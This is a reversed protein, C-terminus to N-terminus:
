KQRRKKAPPQPVGNPNPDQKTNIISIDSIWNLPQIGVVLGRWPNRISSHAYSFLLWISFLFLKKNISLSETTEWHNTLGFWIISNLGPIKFFSGDSLPSQFPRSSALHLKHLPVYTSSFPWARIWYQLLASHSCFLFDWSLSEM